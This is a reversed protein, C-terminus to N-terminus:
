EHGKNKLRINYVLSLEITTPGWYCHRVTKQWVFHNDIRRYRHYEGWLAGFGICADLHFDRAIKFRYGYELCAGWNAKPAQYGHFDFTYVQGAIGLHHGAAAKNAAEQQNKDGFYYRIGLSGGYTKWCFNVNRNEWWAWHGGASISFHRGVPVELTINPIILADALLNTKVFLATRQGSQQMTQSMAQQMDLTTAATGATTALAALAMM